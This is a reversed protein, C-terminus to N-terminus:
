REKAAYEDLFRARVLNHRADALADHEGAEQVPLPPAGLRQAEQQIDNTWMPFGSPLDMMTGFLQAVAVHDYAGYDAWLQPDPAALVFEAVARAIQARSRVAPHDLDLHEYRCRCRKKPERPLHPWVHKSLRPHDQVARQDFQNSIAYLEAGNDERVIGISILDITQGNELFECDYFIRAM